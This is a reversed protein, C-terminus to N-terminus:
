LLSVSIKLSVLTFTTGPQTYPPVSIMDVNLHDNSALSLQNDSGDTGSRTEPVLVPCPCWPSIRSFSLPVVITGVM